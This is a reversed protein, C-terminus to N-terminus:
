WGKSAWRPPEDNEPPSEPVETESVNSDVRKRMVVTYVPKMHEFKEIARAAEPTNSVGITTLKAKAKEALPFTCPYEWEDTYHTSVDERFLSYGRRDSKAYHRQHTTKEYKTGILKPEGLLTWRSELVQVLFPACRPDVAHELLEHYLDLCTKGGEPPCHSTKHTETKKGTYSNALTYHHIKKYDRIWCPLEFTFEDGYDGRHFYSCAFSFPGMEGSGTYHWRLNYASDDRGSPRMKRIFNDTRRNLAPILRPHATGDNIRSSLTRVILDADTSDLLFDNVLGGMSNTHTEDSYHLNPKYVVVTRPEGDRAWYKAILDAECYYPDRLREKLDGMQFGFRRGNGFLFQWVGKAGTPANGYGQAPEPM